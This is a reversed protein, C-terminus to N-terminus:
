LKKLYIIPKQAERTSLFYLMRLRCLSYILNATIFLFERSLWITNNLSALAKKAAM